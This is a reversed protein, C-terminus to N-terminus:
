DQRGYGIKSDVANYPRFIGCTIKNLTAFQIFGLVNGMVDRFESIGRKAICHNRVHKIHRVGDSKLFDICILIGIYRLMEASKFLRDLHEELKFIRGQYLRLGEWVTDGNQVSSDFLSVGAEDRLQRDLAQFLASIGTLLRRWTRLEARTLGRSSTM